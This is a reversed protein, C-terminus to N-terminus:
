HRLQANARDKRVLLISGDQQGIAEFADTVITSTEDEVIIAPGIARTGPLMDSRQVEAAEVTRRLAADFFHRTKSVPAKRAGALRTVKAIPKLTTAVTLSWNAVEIALGDITRGFLRRYADDFAGKVMDTDSLTFTRHPLTVPIEWGQGSYRMFAVLKTTVIADGAAASVFSRAERDLDEIVANVEDINFNSLRQFFGRTAEYSFPARLFGIASGVGAGPPILLSGIGLKECQRCAHLPAGGGFAVMTFAEVDRGNEITHARAANAMNEDVIETIGFAADSRAVGAVHTLREDVAREAMSVSLLFDGGAFNDPDLRGLILNADTVTPEEGGRQYCAPGPESAASRPGVQIRGMADVTAISGGGAGIEVMEVVPTSVPMGSGKKFRYTRAVEFSNATKPAGDEILCIKATTGGMDFSLVKEISHTNAYQAAFIAGGAPGSELLRVPQAAATEVSILGGGSHMMFVQAPIEADRLRQVLRNLYSAVQPRVYANAIVTNFREFERMQPSVVSSLSVSLDPAAAKLVREIEREHEGNAYAHMLGVAVAEYGREVIRAALEKVEELDLPLLISGDAAIREKLTYRDQRAVLPTPLKLNLDYQEFRNESRMEVVDRFGETTIFALKAGRREILANTVLTTGHIVQTIDGPRLGAQRVVKIIGELIAQEPQRYNTLVKCTSLGSACELAVDTFTGGIDVGVRAQMKTM